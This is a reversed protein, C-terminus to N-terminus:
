GLPRCYRSRGRGRQGLVVCDDCRAKAARTVAVCRRGAVVLLGKGTVDITRHLRQNLRAKVAAVRSPAMTARRRGSCILLRCSSNCLDAYPYGWTLGRM